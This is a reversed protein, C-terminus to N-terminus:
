GAIKKLGYKQVKYYLRIIGLSMLDTGIKGDLAMKYAKSLPTPVAKIEEGEDKPLPDYVLGSAVFLYGRSSDFHMVDNKMFLKMKKARYGIEERMERQAAKQPMEGKESRGAPVLWYFKQQKERFERTLMLRGKDDFAFVAVGPNRYFFEFTKVTGSPYFAKAQKVTFIKGKFVTKQKGMKARGVGKGHRFKKIKM